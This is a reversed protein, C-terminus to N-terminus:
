FTAAIAKDHDINARWMSRIQGPALKPNTRRHVSPTNDYLVIDNPAWRHEYVSNPVEMMAEMLEEVLGTGISYGDRKLDIIWSDPVGHFNCRPSLKKTIPHVKMSPYEIIDKGPWHWNQQVVTVAEWRKRLGAPLQPYAEEMDLWITFGAAPNPVTKMYIVRHPFSLEGNVRNAIDAHWPMEYDNLRASLKNSIETYFRKEQTIPNTAHRWVERSVSYDVASWPRGWLACFETFQWPTWAPAHFVLMKRKYLLQRLENTNQTFLDSMDTFETGWNDYINRIQM